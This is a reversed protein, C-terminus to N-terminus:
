INLIHSTKFLRLRTSSTHSNIYLFINFFERVSCIYTQLIFICGGWVCIYIYIYIYIYIQTHSHTHKHTHTIYNHFNESIVIYLLACYTLNLLKYRCTFNWSYFQYKDIWVCVCVCMYIYIYIYIYIYLEYIFAVYM